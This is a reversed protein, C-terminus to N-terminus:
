ENLEPVVSENHIWDQRQQYWSIYSQIGDHLDIKPKYGLLTRAKTIDLAGREPNLSDRAIYDVSVHPFHIQVERVVSNISQAVGRTLNITEGFTQENLTLAALGDLLDTIYTFDLAEEGNGQVILNLNQIANEIFVQVVRRSICGPGYLASPRVITAPFGFVNAYARVLHEGGLKLAGYIGKPKCNADESPATGVSFDGYVMSSSFYIFHTKPFSKAIDLANELTRFSHDFTLFPDKNARSAHSVAALLFIADPNFNGAIKSLRVYDRADEIFLPIEAAQLLDLREEVVRQYFSKQKLPSRSDRLSVLNNVQLADVALVDYGERKLRLALNHGIFGAGGILLIKKKM